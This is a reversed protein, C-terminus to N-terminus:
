CTKNEKYLRLLKQSKRVWLVTNEFTISSFETDDYVYRSFQLNGAAIIREESQSVKDCGHLAWSPFVIFDGSSQHNPYHKNGFSDLFYFCKQKPVDVFHVWSLAPGGDFHSHTGHGDTTHDYMQMWMSVSYECIHHLGLDKLCRSIIDGYFEELPEVMPTGSFAERCFTTYFEGDKKPFSRLYEKCDDIFSKEFQGKTQWLTLM